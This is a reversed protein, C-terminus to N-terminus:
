SARTDDRAGAALLGARQHRRDPRGRRGHHHRGARRRRAGRAPLLAPRRPGRRRAHPHHRPRHDRGRDGPRQPLAAHGPGPDHPLRRRAHAPAARADEHAARRPRRRRARRAAVPVDEPHTLARWLRGLVEDQRLGLADAVSPSAYEIIGAADFMWVLDPSEDVLTTIRAAARAKAEAETIPTFVSAILGDATPRPACRSGSSTTTPCRSATSRTSAVTPASSGRPPSSSSGAALRRRPRAADVPGVAPRRDARAPRRADAGDGRQRRRRVGQPDWVM